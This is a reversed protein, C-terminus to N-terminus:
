RFADRTEVVLMSQKGLSKAVSRNSYNYKGVGVIDGVTIM